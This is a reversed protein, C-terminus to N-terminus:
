LKFYDFVKQVTTLNEVDEDPIFVGTNEKLLSLFVVTDLSDFNLDKLFNNEPKIDIIEGLTDKITDLIINKTIM